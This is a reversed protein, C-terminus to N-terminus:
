VKGSLDFRAAFFDLFARVKPAVYAGPAHVAFLPTSAPQPTWATMTRVLGGTGLAAATLWEPLLVLGMGAEAAAVLTEAHDAFLPGSVRVKSNEGDKKFHWPNSGPLARFTLCAHAPLAAPTDPAGCRELYAPAACVSRRSEGLKRGILSSDPLRGFRLAVDLGEEVVDLVRDTVMMALRVDPFKAQFATAAPVVLPVAIASPISLRLTGSPAAGTGSVAATANDVDRVIARAHEYYTSGAETLSLKRTTRRLLTVGLGGELESIRRSVSSPALGLARAGASVGGTEVVSVFVQMAALMDM